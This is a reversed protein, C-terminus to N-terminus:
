TVMEKGLHGTFNTYRVRIIGEEDWELLSIAGNFHSFRTHRPAGLLSSLLRSGFAGHTVLVVNNEERAGFRQVVHKAVQEAREWVEDATELETDYERLDDWTEPELELVQGLLSASQLARLLPSTLIWHVTSPEEALWKAVRKMQRRGLPTLPPDDLLTQGANNTSQGHRVIYVRMM